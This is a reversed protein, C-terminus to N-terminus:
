AKFHDAGDSITGHMTFAGPTLGVAAVALAGAAVTVVLTGANGLSDKVSLTLSSSSFSGGTISVPDTRRAVELAGENVIVDRGAHADINVDGDKDCVVKGATSTTAFIATEGSELDQPGADPADEAVTVCRAAGGEVQLLVGRAGKPPVSRFGAHQMRRPDRDYARESTPRGGAGEDFGRSTSRTFETWQVQNRVMQTLDSRLKELRALATALIDM